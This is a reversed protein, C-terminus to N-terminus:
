CSKQQSIDPIDYYQNSLPYTEKELRITSKHIM